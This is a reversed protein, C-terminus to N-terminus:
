KETPGRHRQHKLNSLGAGIFLYIFLFLFSNYNKVNHFTSLFEKEQGTDGWRLGARGSVSSFPPRNTMQGESHLGMQSGFGWNGETCAGPSPLSRMRTVASDRNKAYQAHAQGITVLKLPLWPLLQSAAPYGVQWTLWNTFHSHEKKQKEGPVKSSCNEFMSTLKLGLSCRGGLIQLSM